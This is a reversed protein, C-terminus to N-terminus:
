WDAIQLHDGSRSGTDSDDARVPAHSFAIEELPLLYRRSTAQQSVRGVNHVRKNWPEPQLYLGLAILVCFGLLIALATSLVLGIGMIVM